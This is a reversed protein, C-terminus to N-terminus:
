QYSRRHWEFYPESEPGHASCHRGVVYDLLSALLGGPDSAQNVTVTGNRDIVIYGEEFFADCGLKCALMGVNPIDRKERDTCESRKKIHAAVLLDEPLARGCIACRNGQTLLRRRLEDQEGRGTGSTPVDLDGKFNWPKSPSRIKGPQTLLLTRKVNIAQGYLDCMRALDSRMIPEEPLHKIDYMTCAINGAAYALQRDGRSRLDVEASPLGDDPEGLGQRIEEADSTLTRRAEADGLRTRLYEMGQNLTLALRSKDQALLYVVYLGEQPTTTELSDFFGVWPTLTPKGKGGGSKTELRTPVHGNLLQPADKILQQGDSKFDQTRDYIEALRIFFDRLHVTM